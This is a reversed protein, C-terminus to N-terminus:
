CFDIFPLEVLGVLLTTIGLALTESRQVSGVLHVALVAVPAIVVV